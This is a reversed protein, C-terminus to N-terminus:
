EPLDDAAAVDSDSPIAGDVGLSGRAKNQQAQESQLKDIKSQTKKVQQEASRIASPDAAPNSRLSALKQKAQRLENTLQKLQNQLETLRASIDQRASQIAHQVQGMSSSSSGTFGAGFSGLRKFADLEGDALGFIMSKETLTLSRHKKFQIEEYDWGGGLIFRECDASQKLQRLPGFLGTPTGTAAGSVLGSNAPMIPRPGLIKSVRAVERVALPGAGHKWPTHRKQFAFNRAALTVNMRATSVSCAGFILSLMVLLIPLALMLELPALGLQSSVPRGVTRSTTRIINM